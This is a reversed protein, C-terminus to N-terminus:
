VAGIDEESLSLSLSLSLSVRKEKERQGATTFGSALLGSGVVGVRFVRVGPWAM